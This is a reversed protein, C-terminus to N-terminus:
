LTISGAQFEFSKIGQFSHQPNPYGINDMRRILKIHFKTFKGTIFLMWRKISM